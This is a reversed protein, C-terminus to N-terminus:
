GVRGVVVLRDRVVRERKGLGMAVLGVVRGAGSPGVMARRMRRRAVGFRDRVNRLSAVCAWTALRYRERVPRRM